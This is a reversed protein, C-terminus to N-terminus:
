IAHRLYTITIVQNADDENAFFSRSASEESSAGYNTDVHISSVVADSTSMLHESADEYDFVVCILFIARELFFVTHLRSSISGGLLYLFSRGIFLLWFRGRM